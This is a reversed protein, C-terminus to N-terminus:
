YKHPDTKKSQPLNVMKNQADFWCLFWCFITNLVLSSVLDPVHIKLIISKSILLVHINTDTNTNTMKPPTKHEQFYCFKVTCTYETVVYMYTYTYENVVNTYETVVNTCTYETVINTYEIIGNTSETGFYIYIWLFMNINLSLMHVHVYLTNLTLM